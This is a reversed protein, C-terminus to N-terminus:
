EGLLARGREGETHAKQLPQISSQFRLSAFVWPFIWESFEGRHCTSYLILMFAMIENGWCLASGQLPAPFHLLAESSDRGLSLTDTGATGSPLTQQESICEGTNGAALWAGLLWLSLTLPVKAM